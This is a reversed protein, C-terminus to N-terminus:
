NNLQELIFEILSNQIDAAKSNSLNYGGTGTLYGWGRICMLYEGDMFIEDDFNPNTFVKGDLSIEKFGTNVAKVIDQQLKDFHNDDDKDTTFMLAMNHESDWVYTGWDDRVLPFKYYKEFLRKM